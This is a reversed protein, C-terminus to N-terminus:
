LRECLATYGVSIAFFALGGAIFLFDLMAIKEPMVAAVARCRAPAEDPAGPSRLNPM